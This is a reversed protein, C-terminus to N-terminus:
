GNSGGTKETTKLRLFGQEDYVGFMNVLVSIMRMNWDEKYKSLAPERNIDILEFDDMAIKFDYKPITCTYWKPNSLTHDPEMFGFITVRDPKYEFLACTCLGIKDKLDPHYNGLCKVMKLHYKSEFEQQNM